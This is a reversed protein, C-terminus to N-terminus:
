DPPGDFHGLYNNVSTKTQSNLYWSGFTIDSTMIWTWAGLDYASYTHFIEHLTIRKMTDKNYDAYYWWYKYWGDMVILYNGTWVAQGARNPEGSDVYNPQGSSGILLDYGHNWTHVGNTDTEMQWNINGSQENQLGLFSGGNMKAQQYYLYQLDYQTPTWTLELSFFNIKFLDITTTSEIGSIFQRVEVGDLFDSSGFESIHDSDRLHVVYVPHTGSQVDVDFEGYSTAPTFYDSWYGGWGYGYAFVETIHFRGSNFAFRKLSSPAQFMKNIYDHVVWTQYPDLYGNEFYYDTWENTWDAYTESSTKYKLEEVQEEYFLPNYIFTRVHINNGKYGDYAYFSSIYPGQSMISAGSGSVQDQSLWKPIITSIFTKEQTIITIQYEIPLPTSAYTEVIFSSQFNNEDLINKENPKGDNAVKIIPSNNEFKGVEFDNPISLNFQIEDIELGLLIGQIQITLDGKENVIYLVHDEDIQVDVETIFQALGAILTLNVILIILILVVQEERKM